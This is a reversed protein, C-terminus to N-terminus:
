TASSPREALVRELSPSASNRARFREEDTAFVATLINATTPSGADMSANTVNKRDVLEIILADLDIAGPVAINTGVDTARLNGEPDTLVFSGAAISAHQLFRGDPALGMDNVHLLM